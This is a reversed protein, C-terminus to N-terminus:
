IYRFKEISAESEEKWNYKGNLDKIPDLSMSLVIYSIQSHKQNFIKNKIFLTSM